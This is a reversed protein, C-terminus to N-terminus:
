SSWPEGLLDRVPCNQFTAHLNAFKNYEQQLQVADDYVAEWQRGAWATWFGLYLDDVSYLYGAISVFMIITVLVIAPITNRKTDM